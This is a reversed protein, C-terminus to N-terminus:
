QYNYLAFCIFTFTFDCLYLTCSEGRLDIYALTAPVGNKWRPLTIFLRDKYVELGVPIVNEKIFENSRIANERQENSDFEFDMQQWQYAVNLNDNCFVLVNLSILIFIKLSILSVM